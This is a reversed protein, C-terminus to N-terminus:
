LPTSRETAHVPEKLIVFTSPSLPVYLAGYRSCTRESHCVYPSGYFLGHAGKKVFDGWEAGYDVIESFINGWLM